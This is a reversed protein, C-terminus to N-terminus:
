LKVWTTYDHFLNTKRAQMIISLQTDSIDVIDKGFNITEQFLNESTFPYFIEVKFNVFSLRNKDQLKQAQSKRNISMLKKSSYKM